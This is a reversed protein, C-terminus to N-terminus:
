ALEYIKKKETSSLNQSSLPSISAVNQDQTVSM